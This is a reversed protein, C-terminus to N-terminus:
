VPSAAMSSRTIQCGRLTSQVATEVIEAASRVSTIPTGAVRLGVGQLTGSACLVDMKLFQKRAIGATQVAKVLAECATRNYGLQTSNVFCERHDLVLILSPLKSSDRLTVFRRDALGSFAIEIIFEHLAYSSLQSALSAMGRTAHLLDRNNRTSTVLRLDIRVVLTRMHPLLTDAFLLRATTETFVVDLRISLSELITRELLRRYPAAETIGTSLISASALRLDDIDQLHLVDNPVNNTIVEVLIKSILEESLSDLMTQLLPVEQRRYQTLKELCKVREDRRSEHCPTDSKEEEYPTEAKTFKPLTDLQRLRERYPTHSM